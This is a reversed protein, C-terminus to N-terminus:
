VWLPVFRAYRRYLMSAVVWGLVAMLLVVVISVAEPMKGLLPARVVDIMHFAPNFRVVIGRMSDSPFKEIPWLIPTLLLGLILVTGIVEQIDPFRAGLMAICMAMWALNIALLPLTLLLTWVAAMHVAPSWLFVGLLVVGGFVLYFAAKAFSGLVFDTLRMRGEMIFAKHQHFTGVADNIVHIMFRWSVYGIGLYPLYEALPYGMLHSYVNGLVVIFVTTPVIAWFLGLSTRRYKTAIALWSSYAWYDPHRLSRWFEPILRENRTSRYVPLM